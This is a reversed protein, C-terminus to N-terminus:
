EDRAYIQGTPLEGIPSDKTMGGTEQRGLAKDECASITPTPSSGTDQASEKTSFMGQLRPALTRTGALSDM